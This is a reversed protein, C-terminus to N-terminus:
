AYKLFPSVPPYSLSGARDSRLTPGGKETYPKEEEHNLNYRFTRDRAAIEAAFKDILPGAGAPMAGVPERASPLEAAITDTLAAGRRRGPASM